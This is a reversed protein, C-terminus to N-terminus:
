AEAPLVEWINFFVELIEPCSMNNSVIFEFIFREEFPHLLPGTALYPDVDNQPKM